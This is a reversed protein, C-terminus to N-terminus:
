AGGRADVTVHDVGVPLASRVLVARGRTGAPRGDHEGRLFFLFLLNMGFTGTAGRNRWWEGKEPCPRSGRSRDDSSPLLPVGIGRKRRHRIAMTATTVLWPSAPASKAQRPPVSPM